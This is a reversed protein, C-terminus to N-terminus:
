LVKIRLSNELLSGGDWGRFCVCVWFVFLVLCCLMASGKCKVRCTKHSKESVLDQRETMSMKEVISWFWRKFQLLKEANEGSFIFEIHQKLHQKKQISTLKYLCLYM